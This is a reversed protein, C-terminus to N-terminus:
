FVQVEGVSAPNNVTSSSGLDPYGLVSGTNSGWCTVAASDLIACNHTYGAVLSRVPVGIQAPTTPTSSNSSDPVGFAVNNGWCRVNGNTLTACTYSRGTEVALAVEDLMVDGVEEPTKREGVDVDDGYGLRGSGGDGWCRVSGGELVACTHNYFADIDVAAGGLPVVGAADAPEDDGISDPSGYGLQGNTGQGWCVVDGSQLRACSHENAAVVEVAPGPLSVFTSSDVTEDDGIRELAGTGLQGANNRGWCAVDGGELVACTHGTGGAVSIVAAPLPVDGASAPTEDDGIDDTNGYGLQGMGNSGWCRLQGGARLACTHDAGAALAVVDDAVEVPDWDSPPEDDGIPDSYGPQGLRGFDPAGWCRVVGSTSVACSHFEGVAVSAVAAPGLTCAATCSDADDADADDCAEGAAAVADGCTPAACTNTCDDRPDDNSDDCLEAGEVVGDGCVSLVETPLDDGSGGDSCGDLTVAAPVALAVLGLVRGLARWRSDAVIM